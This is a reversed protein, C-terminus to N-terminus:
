DSSHLLYFVTNLTGPFNDCDWAETTPTRMGDYRYFKENDYLISYFHNRLLISFGVLQYHLTQHDHGITFHKDIYSIALQKDINPLHGIEVTLLTPISKFQGSQREFISNTSGCSKCKSPLLKRSVSSELNTIVSGITGLMCTTNFTNSCQHCKFTSIYRDNCLDLTRLFKIINGESGFFDYCKVLSQYIIKLGIHSAIYERLEDFKKSAVLSYIQHFKCTSPTTGIIKLSNIIKDQNLSLIAVINDVPCTNLQLINNYEGEWKPFTISQLSDETASALNESPSSPTSEITIIESEKPFILEIVVPFLVALPYDYDRRKELQSESPHSNRYENYWRTVTIAIYEKTIYNISTSPHHDYLTTLSTLSQAKTALTGHLDTLYTNNLLSTLVQPKIDNFKNDLIEKETESLLQEQSDFTEETAGLTLSDMDDYSELFIALKVESM